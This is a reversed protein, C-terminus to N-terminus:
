FPVNDWAQSVVAACALEITDYIAIDEAEVHRQLWSGVVYVARHNARAFEIERITGFPRANKNDLYVLMSECSLIASRNISKIIRKATPLPAGDTNGWAMRFAASPDYTGVWPLLKDAAMDQWRLYPAPLTVSAGPSDIPGALYCISGTRRSTTPISM